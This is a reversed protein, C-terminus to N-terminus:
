RRSPPRTSRSYPPYSTARVMSCMASASHDLLFNTGIRRPLQDGCGVLYPSPSKTRSRASIEHPDPKSPIVDSNKSNAVAPSPTVPLGAKCDEQLSEPL